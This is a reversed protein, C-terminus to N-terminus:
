FGLSSGSSVPQTFSETWYLWFIQSALVEFHSQVVYNSQLEFKERSAHLYVFFLINNIISIFLFILSYNDKSNCNYKIPLCKRGGM